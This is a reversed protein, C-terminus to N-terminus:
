IIMKVWWLILNNTVILANCILVSQEHDDAVGLVASSFKEKTSCNPTIHGKRECLYCKQESIPVFPREKEMQHDKGNNVNNKGKLDVSGQKM